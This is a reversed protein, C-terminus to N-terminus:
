FTYQKQSHNLETSSTTSKSNPGLEASVSAAAASAAACPSTARREIAAVNQPHNVAWGAICPIFWLTASVGSVLNRFLM